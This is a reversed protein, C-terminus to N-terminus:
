MANISGTCVRRLSCAAPRCSSAIRMDQTHYPSWELSTHTGFARTRRPSTRSARERTIPQISTSSRSPSLAPAPGLCKETHPKANFSCLLVIPVCTADSGTGAERALWVSSNTGWGLKRVVEYAGRALKAGLQVPMYGLADEHMLMHPEEDCVHQADPPLIARLMDEPHYGVPDSSQMQAPSRTPSPSRNSLAPHAIAASLLVLRPSIHTKLLRTQAGPSSKECGPASLIKAPWSRSALSSVTRACEAGLMVGCFCRDRPLGTPCSIVLNTRCVVKCATTELDVRIARVDLSAFTLM